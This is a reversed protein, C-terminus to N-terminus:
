KKKIIKQLDEVTFESKHGGDYPKGYGENIMWSNINKENDIFNNESKSSILFIEGMLRGYKEEHTFKVWVIKGEIQDVLKQRAVHAAEIHLERNEISKLPKMEPSDYGLMRFSDKVPFDNYYFVITITDGDYISVVKAKTLLGDYTFKELEDFSLRMLDNTHYKDNNENKLHIKIKEPQSKLSSDVNQQPVTSNGSLCCGM